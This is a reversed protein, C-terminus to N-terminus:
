QCDNLVTIEVEVVRPFGEEMSGFTSKCGEYVRRVTKSVWGTNGPAARRLHHIADQASDQKLWLRPNTTSPNNTGEQPWFHRAGYLTGFEIAYARLTISESTM